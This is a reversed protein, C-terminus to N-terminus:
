DTWGQISTSMQPLNSYIGGLSEQCIAKVLVPHGSFMIGRAVSDNYILWLLLHPFTTFWLPGKAHPWSHACFPNPQDTWHYKLNGTSSSCTRQDRVCVSVAIWETIVSHLYMSHRNCFFASIMFLILPRIEHLDKPNYRQINWKKQTERHWWNNIVLYAAIVTLTWCFM